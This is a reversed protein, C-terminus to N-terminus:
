YVLLCLIKDVDLGCILVTIIKVVKLYNAMILRNDARM